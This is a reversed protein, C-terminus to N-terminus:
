LICRTLRTSGVSVCLESVVCQVKCGGLKHLNLVARGWITGQLIVVSSPLRELIVLSVLSCFSKLSACSSGLVQHLSGRSLVACSEGSKLM